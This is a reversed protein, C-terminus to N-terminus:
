PIFKYATFIVGIVAAIARLVNWQHARNIIAWGEGTLRYTTEKSEFLVDGKAVGDKDLRGHPVDDQFVEVWGRLLCTLFDRRNEENREVGYELIWVNDIPHVLGVRQKALARMLNLIERERKFNHWFDFAM